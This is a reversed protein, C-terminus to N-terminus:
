EKKNIINIAEGATEKTKNKTLVFQFRTGEQHDPTIGFKAELALDQLHDKIKEPTLPESSDVQNPNWTRM